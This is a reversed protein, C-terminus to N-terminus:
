PDEGNLWRKLALYGEAAFYLLLCIGVAQLAVLDDADMRLMFDHM